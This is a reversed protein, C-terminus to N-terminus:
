CSQTYIGEAPDNSTREIVRDCSNAYTAPQAMYQTATLPVVILTLEAENDGEVRVPATVAAASEM